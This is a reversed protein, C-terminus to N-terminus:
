DSASPVVSHPHYYWEWETDSVAAASRAAGLQSRLREAFNRVLAPEKRLILAIRRHLDVQRSDLNEHNM